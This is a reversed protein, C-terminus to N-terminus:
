HLTAKPPRNKRWVEETLLNAFSIWGAYPAVMGAAKGDVKRAQRVYAATAGLTTFATLMQALRHRPGWAMWLAQLTQVAAWLGLARTRQDSSRANWVRIGSLALVTFLPPWVLGFVPAPPELEPRELQDYAEKVEPNGKSPANRAAILASAAVAGVCLAIGLAVHGTSRGRSNLLGQATERAQELM